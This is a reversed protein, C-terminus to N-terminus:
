CLAWSCVLVAARHGLWVEWCAVRGERLCPLQLILFVGNRRVIECALIESIKLM